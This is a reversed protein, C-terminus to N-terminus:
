SHSSRIADYHCRKAKKGSGCVCPDNRGLKKDMEGVAQKLGPVGHAYEPGIWKAKIHTHPQAALDEQFFTQKVLYGSTVNLLDHLSSASGFDIESRAAVFLCLKWDEEIHSDSINKWELRHSELYVSPVSNRSPFNLPYTVKLTFPGYSAGNETVVTLCGRIFASGNTDFGASFRQLRARGIAQEAEWRDPNLSHWPITRSAAFRSFGLHPKPQPRSQQEPKLRTLITIGVAAVAAAALLGSGADSRDKAKAVSEVTLGKAVFDGAKTKSFHTLVDKGCLAEHFTASIRIEKGESADQLAQAKCVSLGLCIVERSGKKGLRSVLTTGVDMGIAVHISNGTGLASTLVLEMSSQLGIATNLANICRKSLEDGAAPMHVIAIVCDGQHQVVAGPFVNEIVRHFEQRIIHLNRVESEVDEDAEADQIRKTFGSIDAYITVASIRKSNRETLVEFDIPVEAGAIVMEHLPIEDRYDETLRTLREENFKVGLEARLEEHNQWRLATSQYTDNECISKSKQFKVKLCDPLQKYVNETITISDQGDLVKAGLNACSGLSILEREGRHGINAVLSEGASIGVAGSYLHGDDFVKNFPGYLYSQVTIASIVAQLARAAEDDYPKYILYHLRAAQFQILEADHSGLLDAQMKRLVSAERLLKRQKQKDEGAEAVAEHFNPIDAYVHLGQVRRVDELGLNTFDMERGHDTVTPSFDKELEQQVRELSKDKSWSM